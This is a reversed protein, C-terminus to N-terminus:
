EDPQKSKYRITKKKYKGVKKLLGNKLEDQMIARTNKDEFFRIPIDERMM